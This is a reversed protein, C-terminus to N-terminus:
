AARGNIIGKYPKVNFPMQIPSNINVLGREYQARDYDQKEKAVKAQEMSGLGAMIAGAGQIAMGAAVPHRELVGGIRSWVGPKAAAAPPSAGNIIGPSPANMGIGPPANSASALSYDPTAGAFADPAIPTAPSTGPAATGGGFIKGYNSLNGQAIGIGGSTLQALIGLDSSLQEQSGESVLKSTLLSSGPLYYNGVVVAVSEVADRVDTFWSM